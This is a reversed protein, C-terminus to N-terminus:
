GGSAREPHKSMLGSYMDTMQDIMAELSFVEEVRRRAAEGFCARLAPDALLRRLAVSLAQSDETPVVFGSEGDQIAEASGPADSVVIAKRAAMAELIVNAFGEGVSPLAFVDALALLEPIDTRQGMLFVNDELGLSRIQATLQDRTVGEGVILLRLDPFDRVLDALAEVLFRHGKYHHLNAVCVLILGDAPLGVRRREAAPDLAGDFRSPDVGNYIVRMKEEPIGEERMVDLKVAESNPVFLDVLRNTQRELWLYHPKDAKYSGIFRRSQIVVPVRALRAALTGVVYAWFLYGHVIDFRERRFFRVLRFFSALAELYSRLSYRSKLPELGLVTVPVGAAEIEARLPGGKTLACVQVAFRRRDLLRVVHTLHREAGGIDLTGIIYCIKIM